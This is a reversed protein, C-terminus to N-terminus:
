YVHGSTIVNYGKSLAWISVRSDGDCSKLVKGLKSGSRIENNVSKLATDFSIKKAKNNLKARIQATRKVDGRINGYVSSSNKNDAFYIGRGYVSGGNDSVRTVSGSQVQKAIQDATYSIDHQRDYVSNVTRFIEIGGMKDLTADDVLNPKDNLDINYIFKQFSNNALHDPVDQNIMTNITDAKQDDTMSNFQNYIDSISQPAQVQQTNNKRKGGRKYKAM